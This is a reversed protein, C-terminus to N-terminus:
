HATMKAPGRQASGFSAERIKHDVVHNFFGDSLTLICLAIVNNQLVEVVQAYFWNRLSDAEEKPNLHLQYHVYQDGSGEM